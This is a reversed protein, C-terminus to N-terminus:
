KVENVQEATKDDFDTRVWIGPKFVPRIPEVILQQNPGVLTAEVKRDGFDISTVPKYQVPLDDTQAYGMNPVSMAVLFVAFSFVKSM